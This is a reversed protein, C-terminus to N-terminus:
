RNSKLSIKQLWGLRKKGVMQQFTPLFFVKGVRCKLKHIVILAGAHSVFYRLSASIMGVRREQTLHFNEEILMKILHEAEAERSANGVFVNPVLFCKLLTNPKRTVLHM